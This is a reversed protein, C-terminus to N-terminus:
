AFTNVVKGTVQGQTNVVPQPQQSQKEEVQRAKAAQDNPNAAKTQQAPNQQRPQQLVQPAASTSQSVSNIAM